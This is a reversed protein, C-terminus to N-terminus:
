LGDAPYIQEQTTEKDGLDIHEEGIAPVAEAAAGGGLRQGGSDPWEHKPAEHPNRVLFNPGSSSDGDAAGSSEGGGEKSNVLDQAAKMDKADKVKAEEQMKEIQANTLYKQHPSCRRVDEPDPQPLFGRIVFISYGKEVVATIFASLGFEGIISPVKMSDLNYWTGNVKRVAFWHEALNFLFAEEKSPNQMSEIVDPRYSPICQIGRQELCKIIVTVSFFGDDAVNASGEALFAKLDKSDGVEMLKKEDEDLGVAIKSLDAATFVPGQVLSNLCHLACMRDQGQQEWYVQQPRSGLGGSRM